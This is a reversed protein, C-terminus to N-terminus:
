IPRHKYFRISFIAGLFSGAGDSLIDVLDFSRNPIFYKQIFEMGIGYLLCVIALNIFVRKKRDAVIGKKFQWGCLFFALVAFLGVHIMKDLSPIDFLKAKPLDDGPICLLVTVLILWGIFSLLYRTSAAL